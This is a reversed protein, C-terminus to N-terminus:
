SGSAQVHGFATGLVCGVVSRIARGLQERSVPKALVVAGRSALEEPTYKPSHGTVFVCPLDPNLGRLETLTDPGDRGPMQVDLVVADIEDRHREYVEVGEDGGAALRATYGQREVMAGIVHRVGADDDIVLITRHLQTSM